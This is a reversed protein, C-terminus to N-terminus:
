FLRSYDAKRFVPLKGGVTADVIERGDHEFAQQAMRYAAEATRIDPRHWRFGNPYYDPHFHDPDNGSSVVPEHPTGKQTYSHDVGILVVQQFGMYYAVQLAANTVTAGGWLGKLLDVSFHRRFSERLWIVDDGPALGNRIKWNLFKPMPLSALEVASQRAVLEDICVLYTTMFGMRSFDVFVRNLGFTFETRLPELDTVALSPGNGLIFCREGRHLDKLAQVRAKLEAHGNAALSWALQHPIARLRRALARALRSATWESLPADMPRM